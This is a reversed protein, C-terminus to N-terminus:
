GNIIEEVEKGLAKYDEWAVRTKDKLEKIPIGAYAAKGFGSTRRIMNKFVPVGGSILDDRMQEGERSPYPPVICIL